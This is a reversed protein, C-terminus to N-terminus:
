NPKASLNKLSIRMNEADQFMETKFKEFRLKTEENYERMRSRFENNAKEMRVIEGLIKANQNPIGKAEKIKRENKHINEDMALTFIEWEGPSKKNVISDASVQEPIISDNIELKSKKIADFAETPKQEHSECSSMSFIVLAPALIKATVYKALHTINLLKNRM